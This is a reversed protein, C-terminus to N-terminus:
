RTIMQSMRTPQDLLLASDIDDQIMLWNTKITKGHQLHVDQATRGPASCGGLMLAAICVVAVMWLSHGIIGRM